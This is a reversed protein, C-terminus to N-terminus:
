SFHWFRANSWFIGIKLTYLVLALNDSSHDCNSIKNVSNFPLVVKFLMIFLVLPFSSNMENSHDCRLRGYSIKCLSM